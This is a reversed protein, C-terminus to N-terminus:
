FITHIASRTTHKKRRRRETENRNEEGKIIIELFVYVVQTALDDTLRVDDNQIIHLNM